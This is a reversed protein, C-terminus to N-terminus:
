FNYVLMLNGNAYSRNIGGTEKYKTLSIYARFRLYPNLPYIIRIYPTIMNIERDLYKRPIHRWRKEQYIALGADFTLYFLNRKQLFADCLLVQGSGFVFQEFEHKFFTGRDNLELYGYFGLAFDKILPIYLSDSILYKRVVYSPIQDFAEEFDYTNYDALIATKLWNRFKQWRYNIVASLRYIRNWYNNASQEELIYITHFMWTYFELEIKL